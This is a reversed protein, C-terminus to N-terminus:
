GIEEVMKRQANILISVPEFFSNLDQPDAPDDISPLVEGLRLLAVLYASVAKKDDGSLKAELTFGTAYLSSLTGDLKARAEDLKTPQKAAVVDAFLKLDTILAETEGVYKVIAVSRADALKQSSTFYMQICSIVIFGVIMHWLRVQTENLMLWLKKYWPQCVQHTM